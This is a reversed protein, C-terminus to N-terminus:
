TFMTAKVTTKAWRCYECLTNITRWVLRETKRWVLEKYKIFHNNRELTKRLCTKVAQYPHLDTEPQHTSKWPYQITVFVRDSTHTLPFAAAPGMDLLVYNELVINSTHEDDNCSKSQYDATICKSQYSRIWFYFINGGNFIVRTVIDDGDIGNVMDDFSVTKKSNHIDKWTTEIEPYLFSCIVLKTPCYPFDFVPFYIFDAGYM